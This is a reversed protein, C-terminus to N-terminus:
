DSRVADDGQRRPVRRGQPAARRREDLARASVDRDRIVGADVLRDGITLSSSGPPIEVFQEAGAYGRYSQNVRQYMVVAAAGAVVILLFLFLLLKKL